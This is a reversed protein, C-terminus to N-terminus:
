AASNVMDIIPSPHRMPTSTVTTNSQNTSINSVPMNNLVSGGGGVSGAIKRLSAEQMQATRQANIVTGSADPLIMEPGLEGVIMPQGARFPGGKAFGISEFLSELQEPGIAKKALWGLGPVKGLMEMAKEALQKRLEVRKAEAAATDVPVVDDLKETSGDLDIGLWNKLIYNIPSELFDILGQPLIKGILKGFLGTFDGKEAVDLGHAGEVKALAAEPTAFGFLGFVWNIPSMIFDVIGDPLIAKLLKSWLGVATGAILSVKDATSVKDVDDKSSLKLWNVFIYDIPNKIFERLGKPLIADLVMGFVGTIDCKKLKETALAGEETTEREATKWGLWNVLMFDLPNTAFAVIADYTSEGIIKKIILKTFDVFGNEEMVKVAAKGEETATGEATKWNLLDVLVYDIPNSVFKVIADYTDDGIVGRVVSGIWDTVKSITGFIKKTTDSATVNGQDDKETLGLWGLVTGLADKAFSVVWDPILFDILSTLWNKKPEGEGGVPDKMDEEGTLGLWGKVTNIIGEWVKGPFCKIQEWKESAWKGVGDFFEAIKKGGIFGLVAGIAGGLVGGAAAGLPGGLMFGVGAGTVAWKGANAMAGEWGSKTGGIAGGLAASTKSVNWEDAKKMGKMGDNVMMGIGAAIAAPGMIKAMAPSTFAKTAGKMLASIGGKAGGAITSALSGLLGGAGMALAGLMGRKPAADGSLAKSPSSVSDAIQKLLKTQRKTEHAADRAKETAAAGGSKKNQNEISKILKGISDELAM